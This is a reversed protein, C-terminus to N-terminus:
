SSLHGEWWVQFQIKLLKTSIQVVLWTECKNVHIVVIWNAGKQSDGIYKSAPTSSGRKPTLNYWKGPGPGQCCRPHSNSISPPREQAGPMTTWTITINWRCPKRTQMHACSTAHPFLYLAPAAGRPPSRAVRPIRSWSQQQEKGPSVSTGRERAPLCASHDSDEVNLLSVTHKDPPQLIKINTKAKKKRKKHTSLLQAWPKLEPTM